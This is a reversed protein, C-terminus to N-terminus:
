ESISQVPMFNIKTSTFSMEWNERLIYSSMKFTEIQFRILVMFIISIQFRSDSDKVIIMRWLCIVDIEIEYNSYSSCRRIYFGSRSPYAQLDEFKIFFMIKLFNRIVARWLSWNTVYQVADCPQDSQCYYWVSVNCGTENVYKQVMKLYREFYFSFLINSIM